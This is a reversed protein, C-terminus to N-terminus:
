RPSRHLERFLRQQEALGSAAVRRPDIWVEEAVSDNLAQAQEFAEEETLARLEARKIRELEPGTRKWTEVWLRMQEKESFSKAFSWDMNLVTASIMGRNFRCINPAPVGEHREARRPRRTGVNGHFRFQEITPIKSVCLGMWNDSSGGALAFALTSASADM